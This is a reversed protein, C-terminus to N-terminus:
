TPRSTADADGPRVRHLSRWTVALPDRRDLRGPASRVLRAGELLEALHLRCSAKEIRRRGVTLLVVGDSPRGCTGCREANVM